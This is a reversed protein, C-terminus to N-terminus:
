YLKGLPTELALGGALPKGQASTHCAVCDGLRAVYRGKEVLARTAADLDSAYNAPLDDIVKAAQAHPSPASPSSAPSQLAAASAAASPAAAPANGLALGGSFLAAAGLLATLASVTATKM